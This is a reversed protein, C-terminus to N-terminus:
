ISIYIGVEFFKQRDGDIQMEMNIIKMNNPKKERMRTSWRTDIAILYFFDIM